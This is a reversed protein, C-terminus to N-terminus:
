WVCDQSVKWVCAHSVYELVVVCTRDFVIMAICCRVCTVEGYLVLMARSCRVHTVDSCGVVILANASGCEPRLSGYHDLVLVVVSSPFLSGCCCM